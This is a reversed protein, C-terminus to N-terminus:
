YIGYFNNLWTHIAAVQTADHYGIYVLIEGIDGTLYNGVSTSGLAVALSNAASTNGDTQFSTNSNVLAGNEYIYANSNAYDIPSGIIKYTATTANGTVTAVSDADLRRGSTQWANAASSRIDCRSATASTGTSFYLPFALTGGTNIKSVVYMTIASINNTLALANNVILETANAGVFRVGKRAKTGILSSILVPQKSMTSQTATITSGGLDTLQSVSGLGDAIGFRNTEGAVLGDARFWFAYGNIPPPILGGQNHIVVRRNINTNPM